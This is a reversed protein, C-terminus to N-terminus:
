QFVTIVNIIFGSFILGVGLWRNFNQQDVDFDLKPEAAVLICNAGIGVLLLSFPCMLVRGLFSM